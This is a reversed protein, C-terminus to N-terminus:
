ALEEGIINIKKGKETVLDVSLSTIADRKLDERKYRRGHEAIVLGDEDKEWDGEDDPLTETHLFIRGIGFESKKLDRKVKDADTHEKWAMNDYGHICGDHILIEQGTSVAKAFVLMPADDTGVILTKGMLRGYYMIEFLDTGDQAV